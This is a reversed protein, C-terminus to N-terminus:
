QGLWIKSLRYIIYIDICVNKTVDLILLHAFCSKTDGKVFYLLIDDLYLDVYLYVRQLNPRHGKIMCLISSHVRWNVCWPKTSIATSSTCTHHSSAMHTTNCFRLLLGGDVIGFCRPVWLRRYQPLTIQLSGDGGRTAMWCSRREKCNVRQHSHKVNQRHHWM